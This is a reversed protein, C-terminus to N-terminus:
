LIICASAGRHRELLQYNSGIHRETAFGQGLRADALHCLAGDEADLAVADGGHVGLGGHGQLLAVGQDQCAIDLLNLVEKGVIGVGGGTLGLLPSDAIAM